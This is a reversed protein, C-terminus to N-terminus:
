TPWSNTGVPSGRSLRLCATARQSTYGMLRLTYFTKKKDTGFYFTVALKRANNAKHIYFLPSNSM